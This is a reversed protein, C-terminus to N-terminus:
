LYSKTVGAYKRLASLRKSVTAARCILGKVANAPLACAAAREDARTPEGPIDVDLDVGRQQAINKPPGYFFPAANRRVNSM